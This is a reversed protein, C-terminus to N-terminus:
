LSSAPASHELVRQWFVAKETPDLQQYCATFFAVSIEKESKAGLNRVGRLGRESDILQSLKGFTSAGSRMLGNSSRVSLKLEDISLESMRRKYPVPVAETPRLEMLAAYVGCKAADDRLRLAEASIDKPLVACPADVAAPPPTEGPVTSIWLKGALYDRYAGEDLRFWGWHTCVEYCADNHIM